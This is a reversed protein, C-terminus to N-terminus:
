LVYKIYNIDNDEIANFIKNVYNDYAHLNSFIIIIFLIFIKKIM